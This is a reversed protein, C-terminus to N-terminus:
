PVLVLLQFFDVQVPPLPRAGPTATSVSHPLFPRDLPGFSGLPVTRHVWNLPEVM